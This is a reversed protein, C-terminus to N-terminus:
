AHDIFTAKSTIVPVFTGKKLDQLSPGVTILQKATPQKDGFLGHNIAILLAALDYTKQKANYVVHTYNVPTFLKQLEYSILEFTVPQWSWPQWLNRNEASLQDSNAFASKTPVRSIILREYQSMMAVYRDFYAVLTALSKCDCSVTYGLQLNQLIVTPTIIVQENTTANPQDAVFRLRNPNAMLWKSFNAFIQDLAYLKGRQFLTIDGIRFPTQLHSNCLSWNLATAMAKIVDDSKALNYSVLASYEQVRQDAQLHPKSNIEGM